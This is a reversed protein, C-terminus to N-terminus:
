LGADILQKEYDRNEKELDTIRENLADIDSQLACMPCINTDFCIEQHVEDCLKM